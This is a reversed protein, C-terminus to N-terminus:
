IPQTSNIRTQIKIQYSSYITNLKHVTYLLMKPIENLIGIGHSDDQLYRNKNTHRKSEKKIFFIPQLIM